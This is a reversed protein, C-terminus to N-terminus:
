GAGPNLRTFSGDSSPLCCYREIKNVHTHEDVRISNCVCGFCNCVSISNAWAFHLHSQIATKMKRSASRLLFTSASGETLVLASASDCSMIFQWGTTIVAILILILANLLAAPNLRFASSRTFIRESYLLDWSRCAVNPDPCDGRRSCDPPLPNNCWLDSITYFHHEYLPPPDTPSCWYIFAHVFLCVFSQNFARIWEDM